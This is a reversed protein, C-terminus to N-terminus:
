NIPIDKIIKTSTPQPLVDEELGSVFLFVISPFNTSPYILPAIIVTLFLDVPVIIDRVVVVDFPENEKSFDSTSIITSLIPPISIDVLSGKIPTIFFIIAFFENSVFITM